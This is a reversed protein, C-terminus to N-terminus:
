LARFPGFWDLNANGFDEIEDYGECSTLSIAISIIYILLHKMFDIAAFIKL